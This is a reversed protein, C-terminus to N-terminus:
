GRAAPPTAPGRRWIRGHKIKHICAKGVGYHDALARQPLSSARIALVDLETLKARGNREGPPYVARGKAIMDAVNDAITGLFLHDADVCAPNDCRHCVCMGDPIPGHALEWALRHASIRKKDATLRGYGTRTRGRQWVLCGDSMRKSGSALREAPTRGNRNYYDTM